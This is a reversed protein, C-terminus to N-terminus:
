VGRQAEIIPAFEELIEKGSRVSAKKANHGDVTGSIAAMYDGYSMSEV